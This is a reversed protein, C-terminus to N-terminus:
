PRFTNSSIDWLSKTEQVDIIEPNTKSPLKTPAQDKWYFSTPSPVSNRQSQNNHKLPTTCTLTQSSLICKPVEIRSMYTLHPLMEGAPSNKSLISALSITVHIDIISPTHFGHAPHQLQLVKWYSTPPLFLALCHLRFQVTVIANGIEWSSRSPEFFWQSYSYLHLNKSIFPDPASKKCGTSKM